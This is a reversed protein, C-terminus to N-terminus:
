IQFSFPANLCPEDECDCSTVVKLPLARGCIKLTKAASDPASVRSRTLPFPIDTIFRFLSLTATATNAVQLM